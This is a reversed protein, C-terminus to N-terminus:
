GLRRGSIWEVPLRVYRDATPSPWRELDLQGLRAIEDPDNVEHARGVVLVSWGSQTDRAAQDAELCIVQGAAVADLKSGPSTRFVVSKGDVAYAVPLIAPLAGVSVGVRGLWQSSLLRLCEDNSLTQM